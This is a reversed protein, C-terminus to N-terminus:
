EPWTSRQAPWYSTPWQGGDVGSCGEPAKRQWSGGEKRDIGPDRGDGARGGTMHGDHEAVSLCGIDMGEDM